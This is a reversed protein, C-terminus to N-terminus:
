FCQMEIAFEGLHEPCQFIYLCGADGWNCNIKDESDIQCIFQMSKDCVHCIKQVEGQIWLPYGGISSLPEMVCGAAEGAEEYADSPDDYIKECLLSLKPYKETFTEYDPLNNIIKLEAASPIIRRRTSSKQKQKVYQQPTPNIYSDIAWLGKENRGGFPLCNFCYYVTYLPGMGILEENFGPRFQFVFELPQDCGACIHKKSGEQAYPEGGFRTQCLEIDGIVPYLPKVSICSKKIKSLEKKLTEFM